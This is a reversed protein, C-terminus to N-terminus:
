TPEFTYIHTHTHTHIHPHEGVPQAVGGGGGWGSWMNPIELNLTPWCCCCCAATQRRWSAGGFLRRRIKWRFLIVTQGSWLIQIRKHGCVCVCVRARVFSSESSLNIPPSDCQTYVEICLACLMIIWVHLGIYLGYVTYYDKCKERTYLLLKQDNHKLKVGEISCGNTSMNGPCATTTRLLSGLRIAADPVTVPSFPVAQAVCQSGIYFGAGEGMGACPTRPGIKRTMKQLNAWWTSSRNYSGEGRDERGRTM